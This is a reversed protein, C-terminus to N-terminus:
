ARERALTAVFNTEWTKGGDDSFAQEFRHSDPKIESWTGRVLISRGHWIEQDILEGKGDKFQGIMPIGLMGDRSDVYAQAWQHAEPNYLFLTAGEWHGDPGDAEIEELQARGGWVKRVAVTGELNVWESSGSLPTKLRRIHSRWTGINFDFDHQGDRQAERLAPTAAASEAAQATGSLTALCCAITCLRILNRM